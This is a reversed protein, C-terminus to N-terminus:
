RRQVVPGVFVLFVITLIPCVTELDQNLGQYHSIDTRKFLFKLYSHFLELSARADALGSGQMGNSIELLSAQGM